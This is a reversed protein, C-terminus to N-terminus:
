GWGLDDHRRERTFEDLRHCEGYRRRARRGGVVDRSLVTPLILRLLSLEFMLFSLEFLTM